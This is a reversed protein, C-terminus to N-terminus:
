FSARVDYQQFHIILGPPQHRFFHLPWIGTSCDPTSYYSIKVLGAGFHHQWIRNVIVRRALPNTDGVIWDALAVRRKQEPTKADIKLSVFQTLAGPSVEDRPAEPDGRYFLRTPGPQAFTGVYAKTSNQVNKLQQETSELDALMARGRESEAKPFNNFVYVPKAPQGGKFPQRDKSSAVTRWEGKKLGAEIRYGIPVRVGYKGQRDRAWEIRDLRAPNPM